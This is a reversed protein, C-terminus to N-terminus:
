RSKQRLFSSILLFWNSCSSTGSPCNPLAKLFRSHMSKEQLLIFTKGIYTASHEVSLINLSMKLLIPNIGSLKKKDAFICSLKYSSFIFVLGKFLNLSSTPLNWSSMSKPIYCVLISNRGNEMPWRLFILSILQESVGNFFTLTSIMLFPVLAIILDKICCCLKLM